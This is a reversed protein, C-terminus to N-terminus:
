KFFKLLSKVGGNLSPLTDFAQKKFMICLKFIAYICGIEMSSWLALYLVDGTLFRLNGFIEELLNSLDGNGTTLSETNTVLLDYFQHLAGVMLNFKDIISQFFSFIDSM